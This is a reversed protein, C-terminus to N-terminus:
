LVVKDYGLTDAYLTMAKEINSVGITCGNPGGTIHPGKTYFNEGKVIQFYLGNPDTVYFTEGGSPLAVIETALNAGNNEYYDYAAKM